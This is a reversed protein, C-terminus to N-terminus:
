ASVCRASLELLLLRHICPSLAAAAPVSAGIHVATCKLRVDGAPLAAPAAGGVAVGLAASVADVDLVLSRRRGTGKGSAVGSPLGGSAARQAPPLAIDMNLDQLLADLNITGTGGSPKPTHHPPTQM